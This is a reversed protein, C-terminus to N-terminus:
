VARRRRSKIKRYKRRAKNRKKSKKGGGGGDCGRNRLECATICTKHDITATHIDDKLRDIATDLLKQQEPTQRPTQQLELKALQNQLGCIINQEDSCHKNCDIPM